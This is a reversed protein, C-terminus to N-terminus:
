EDGIVLFKRLVFIEVPTAASDASAATAPHVKTDPYPASYSHTYSNTHGNGYAYGYSHSDGNGNTNSDSYADSETCGRLIQRRHEFLQPRSCSRGM